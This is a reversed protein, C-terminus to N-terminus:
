DKRHQLSVIGWFLLFSFSSILLGCTKMPAHYIIKIQHQGEPVPFGVFATNVKQVPVEKQDVYATFGKDYPITTAFMSAPKFNGFARLTNDGIRISHVPQDSATIRDISQPNIEYITVDQIKYHGPSFSVSIKKADNLTLFYHFVHNGNFYPADLSSLKNRIGNIGIVCGKGSLDKVRFSLYLVPSKFQTNLKLFTDKQSHVKYNELITETCKQFNNQLSVDPLNQDVVNYEMLAQIKEIDSLQNFQKKSILTNTSYAVSRARPNSLLAYDGKRSLLQYGYPITKNKTIFYKSSLLPNCIPNASSMVSINNNSSNANLMTQYYFQNYIKNYSSSYVSIKKQMSNSHINATTNADSLEDIRYRALEDTPLHNVLQTYNSAVLSDYEETPIFSEMMFGISVVAIMSITTILYVLKEKKFWIFVILLGFELLCIPFFFSSIAALIIAIIYDFWQFEKWKEEKLFFGLLLIALPIFPILIKPRIYLTGNLMYLIPSACSVLLLGVALFRYEMRSKHICCFVIAIMGLATLGMSYNGYLMSRGINMPLLLEMFNINASSKGGSSVLMTFTPLLIMMAMGVGLVLVGAFVVGEKLFDLIRFTQYKRLFCFVGYLTLAILCSILYFYSTMGILFVSLSLLGIKKKQFFHEVGWFGMMLFPLYNIFMIQRHSHFLIPSACLFAIVLFIRLGYSFDHKMLLGYLLWVAGIISLMTSFMIFLNMPIFPFLYSLLIIPNLLGYYSVSFMNMGCGNNWNIDPFLNGTEYFNQRFQSAFTVHQKFWDISSGYQYGMLLVTCVVAILLFSLSFLFLLDKKKM